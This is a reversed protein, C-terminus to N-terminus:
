KSSESSQLIYYKCGQVSYLCKGNQFFFFKQANSNGTEEKYKAAALTNINNCDAETHSSVCYEKSDTTLVQKVNDAGCPCPDALDTAYMNKPNSNDGDFDGSKMIERIQKQGEGTISLFLYAMVALFIIALAWVVLVKADMGKRNIRFGKIKDM